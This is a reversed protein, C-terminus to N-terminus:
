RRPANIAAIELGPGCAELVPGAMAAGAGLAAM